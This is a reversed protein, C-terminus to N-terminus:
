KRTYYYWWNGYVMLLFCAFDYSLVTLCPPSKHCEFVAVGLYVGLAPFDFFVACAKEGDGAVVVAEGLVGNGPVPVVFPFDDGNLLSAGDEGDVALGVREVCSFANEDIGGGEVADAVLTVGVATELGEYEMGPQDAPAEFADEPLAVHLGDQGMGAQLLIDKGIQQVNLERNM